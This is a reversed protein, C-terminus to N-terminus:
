EMQFVQVKAELVLQLNQMSYDQAAREAQPVQLMAAQILMAAQHVQVAAAVGEVGVRVIHVIHAEVMVKIWQVLEPVVVVVVQLMALGAVL